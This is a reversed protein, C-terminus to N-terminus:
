SFTKLYMARAGELIRRRTAPDSTARAMVLTGAMGSFLLSFNRAREEESAGPLFRGIRRAQARLAGEFATRVARPQRSIESVLAALPCGDSARECHGESLYTEIIAQLEHGKPAQEAARVLRAGVDEFGDALAEAYLQEKNIFHRYFGGHTLRLERMLDAIPVGQSGRGRLRRSAARVIRQHTQEKHDVPYRM